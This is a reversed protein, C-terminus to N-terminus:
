VRPLVYDTVLCSERNSYQTRRVKAKHIHLFAVLTTM